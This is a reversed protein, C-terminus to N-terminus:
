AAVEKAAAGPAPPIPADYQTLNFQKVLRMLESPYNPDTCYGCHQIQLAFAAPDDAVAMAPQYRVLTALLRGHADFSEEPSAYRHFMALERITRGDKTVERTPLQVYPESGDAHAVKVGFFNNGNQALESQGWGSEQIAQAITISAPVGWKAQSARAAAAVTKLFAFQQARTVPMLIRNIEAAGIRRDTFLHSAFEYYQESDGAHM